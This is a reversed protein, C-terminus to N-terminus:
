GWSFLETSPEQTSASGNIHSVQKKDVPESLSDHTVRLISLLFRSLVFMSRVSHFHKCIHVYYLMATLFISM